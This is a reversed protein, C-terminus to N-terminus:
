PPAQIKPSWSAQDEVSSSRPLPPYLPPDRRQSKRPHPRSPRIGRGRAPCKTAGEERLLQQVQQGGGEVEPSSPLPVPCDREGGQKRLWRNQLCFRCRRSRLASRASVQAASSAPAAPAPAEADLTPPPPPAPQLDPIESGAPASSASELNTWLFPSQSGRSMSGHTLRVPAAGRCPTPALGVPSPLSPAPARM